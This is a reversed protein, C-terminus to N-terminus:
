IFQSPNNMIELLDEPIEKEADIPRGTLQRVAIVSHLLDFRDRLLRKSVSINSKEAHARKARNVIDRLALPNKNSPAGDKRSSSTGVLPSNNSQSELTAQSRKAFVANASSPATAKTALLPTSSRNPVSDIIQSTTVRDVLGADNTIPCSSSNNSEAANLEDLSLDGDDEEINSQSTRFQICNLNTCYLELFLFM